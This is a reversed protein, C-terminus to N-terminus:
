SGLELRRLQGCASGDERTLGGDRETRLSLSHNRSVEHIGGRTHLPHCLGSRDDDSFRSASCGLRRDGVGIGTNVLQLSTLIRHLDPTSEPHRRAASSVQPPTADFRGEYSAFSLQAQDPLEEVRARVLPLRLEDRDYADGSDALGPECPLEVLVAVAQRLGYTPM